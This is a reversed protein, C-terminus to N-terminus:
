QFEISTVKVDVKKTWSSPADDMKVGFTRSYGPKLPKGEDGFSMETVLVPHYTKEFIPKGDPGLCYITIEVGKLTRDGTNKIEGFVGTQGLVSRAVKVGSVIVRGLYEKAAEDNPANRPTISQVDPIRIQPAAPVSDKRLLASGLTTVAGFLIGWFLASALMIIFIAPVAAIAWKIMFRVMSLFPMDFDTVTVRSTDLESM